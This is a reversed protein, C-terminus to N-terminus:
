EKATLSMEKNNISDQKIHFKDTLVINNIKGNRVIFETTVSGFGYLDAMTGIRQDVIIMVKSWWSLPMHLKVKPIESNKM